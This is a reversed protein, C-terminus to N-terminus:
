PAWACFIAGTTLPPHGMDQKSTSEKPYQVVHHPPIRPDWLLVFLLLYNQYGTWGGCKTVQTSSRKKPPPKPKPTCKHEAACVMACFLPETPTTTPATDKPKETHKKNQAHAIYQHVLHTQKTLM